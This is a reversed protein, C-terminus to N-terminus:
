QRHLRYRTEGKKLQRMTFDLPNDTDTKAMLRDVRNMRDIASSYGFFSLINKFIYIIVNPNHDLQDPQVKHQKPLDSSSSTSLLSGMNIPMEKAMSFVQNVWSSPKAAPSRSPALEDNSALTQTYCPSEIAQHRKKRKQELFTNKIVIKEKQLERIIGRPTCTSAICQTNVVADMFIFVMERAPSYTNWNAVEVLTNNKYSVLLNDKIVEMSCDLASTGKLDVLGIKQNHMPQNHYILLGKESVLYHRFFSPRNAKERFKKPKIVHNNLRISLDWHAHVVSYYAVIFLARKNSLLLLNENSKLFLVKESDFTFCNYHNLIDTANISFKGDIKLDHSCYDRTLEANQLKYYKKGDFTITVNKYNKLLTVQLNGKNIEIDGEANMRTPLRSASNLQIFDLLGNAQSISISGSNKDFIYLHKIDEPAEWYFSSSEKDPYFIHHGTDGIIIHYNKGNLQKNVGFHPNNIKRLDTLLHDLFYADDYLSILEEYLVIHGVNKIIQLNTVTENDTRTPTVFFDDATKILTQQALSILEAKDNYIVTRNNAYTIKVIDTFNMPLLVLGNGDIFDGFYAKITTNAHRATIVDNGGHGDVYTAHSVKIDNTENNGIISHINESDTFNKQIAVVNKQESSMGGLYCSFQNSAIYFFNTTNGQIITCDELLNSFHYRNVTFDNKIIEINLIRKGQFIIDTSYPVTIETDSSTLYYICQHPERFYDRKYIVTNDCDPVYRNFFWREKTQSLLVKDRRRHDCKQKEDPLGMYDRINLTTASIDNAVPGCTIEYISDNSYLHQLIIRNDLCSPRKASLITENPKFIFDFCNLWLNTIKTRINADFDIKTIEEQSSWEYKYNGCSAM